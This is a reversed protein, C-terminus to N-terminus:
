RIQYIIIHVLCIVIIMTEPHIELNFNYVAESLLEYYKGVPSKAAMITPYLSNNDGFVGNTIPKTPDYDSLSKNNLTVKGQVVTTLGM